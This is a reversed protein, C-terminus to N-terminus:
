REKQKHDNYELFKIVINYQKGTRKSHVINIICKTKRQFVNTLKLIIKNKKYNIQCKQRILKNNFPYIEDASKVIFLLRM